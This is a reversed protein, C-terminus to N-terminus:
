NKNKSDMRLLKHSAENESVSLGMLVLSEVQILLSSYSHDIKIITKLEIFGEKEEDKKRWRDRVTEKKTERHM